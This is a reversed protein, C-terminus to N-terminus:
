SRSRHSNTACNFVMMSVLAKVLVFVNKTGFFENPDRVTSIMDLVCGHEIARFIWLFRLQSLVRAQIGYLHIAQDSQTLEWLCCCFVVSTFTFEFTSNISNLSYISKSFPSMFFDLQMVCNFKITDIRHKIQLKESDRIISKRTRLQKRQQKCQFM